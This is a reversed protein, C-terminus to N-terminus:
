ETSRSKFFSLLKSFQDQLRLLEKRRDQRSLIDSEIKKKMGSLGREFKTLYDYSFDSM